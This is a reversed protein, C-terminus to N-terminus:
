FGMEIRFAEEAFGNGRIKERLYEVARRDTEPDGSSQEVVFIRNEVPGYCFLSLPELLMKSSSFLSRQERFTKLVKGDRLSRLEIVMQSDGPNAIKVVTTGMTAALDKGIPSVLANDLLRFGAQRERAFGDDVLDKDHNIRYVGGFALFLNEENLNEGVKFDSGYNLPTALFLPESDYLTGEWDITELISVKVDRGPRTPEFSFGPRLFFLTTLIFLCLVGAAALLSGALERRYFRYVWLRGTLRM